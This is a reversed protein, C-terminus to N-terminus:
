LFRGRESNGWTFKAQGTFQALLGGTQSEGCMVCNGPPLFQAFYERMAEADEAPLVGNDKVTIIQQWDLRPLNEAKLESLTKSKM